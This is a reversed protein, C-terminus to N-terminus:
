RWGGFLRLVLLPWPLRTGEIRTSIIYTLVTAGIAARVLWALLIAAAIELTLM